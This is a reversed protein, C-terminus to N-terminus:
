AHCGLHRPGKPDYLQEPAIAELCVCCPESTRAVRTRLMRAVAQHHRRPVMYAKPLPAPFDAPDPIM